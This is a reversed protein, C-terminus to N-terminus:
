ISGRLEAACDSLAGLLSKRAAARQMRARKGSFRLIRPALRDRSGDTELHGHHALTLWQRQAAARSLGARQAATTVPRRRETDFSELVALGRALGAIFDAEAITSRAPTMPQVHM